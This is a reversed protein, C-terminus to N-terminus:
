GMGVRRGVCRLNSQIEIERRLQKEVKADLLEAKYLCKLAVIFGGAHEHGPFPNPKTRGLYVRGFKGKGLPRGIEFSSLSWPYTPRKLLPSSSDLELASSAASVGSIRDREAEDRELGGDYRGIDM